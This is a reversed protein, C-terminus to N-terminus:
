KALIMKKTEVFNDTIISYFYVGSSYKAANWTVEYEGARLNESALVELEKGTIDYVSIKVFSSKAIDFRITTNPNFPNPYNQMLAFSSPVINSIPEIATLVSYRITYFAIGTASFNASGTVFVRTSDSAVVFSAFDNAGATGTETKQWYVSGDNKYGITLYDYNGSLVSGTVYVFGSANDVSLCTPQENTGGASRSVWQQALASNYKITAYDLATGVASSFGTVYVNNSPDIAASTLVDTSSAPGNYVAGATSDGTTATYRITVFNQQQGTHFSYGAVYVNAATNDLMVVLANDEANQTGNYKKVWVLVGGPTVKVTMWDELGATGSKGTAYINGAGDVKVSQAQDFTTSSAGTYVFPFSAATNGSGDYKLVLYKQAGGVDTRGVSYVNGAGDVAISFGYDGGNGTGNYTVAWLQNGTAADYKITVVNRNTANYTWGTVYVANNDCTIATPKDEAGLGTYRRVWVTDGTAPNYRVTVIDANNAAALSWGTVFVFGSPNVCMAVASDQLNAPGNYLKSWITAPTQSHIEAQIFFVSVLIFLSLIILKIRSM